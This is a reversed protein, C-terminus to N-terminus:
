IWLEDTDDPDEEQYEIDNNGISTSPAYMTSTVLNPNSISNYTQLTGIKKLVDPPFKYKLCCTNRRRLGSKITLISDLLKTGM